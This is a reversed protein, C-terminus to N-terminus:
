EISSHIKNLIKDRIKKGEELMESCSDAYKKALEKNELSMLNVKVNLIAGELGTCLMLTGVGIDTIANQNGNDVLFELEKMAELSLAATKYPVKISYLTADAMAQQRETIQKFTDKPMKLAKMFENFSKTDEDVLKSLEERIQGLKDFKVEFEEKIKEDLAEYKKKGFSLHAMMRSLGVGIDSALAAVSGGGPAPSNSDVEKAFDTVTMNILKM